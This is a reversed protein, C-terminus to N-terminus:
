RRGEPPDPLPRAALELAHALDAPGIASDDAPLFVGGPPVIAGGAGGRDEEGSPFAELVRPADPLVPASIIQQPAIAVLGERVAGDVAVRVRAGLALDHAATSATDCFVLPGHPMFRIGAISAGTVHEPM